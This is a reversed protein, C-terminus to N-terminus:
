EFLHEPLPKKVDRLRNKIRSAARKSQDTEAIKQDFYAMLKMLFRAAKGNIGRILSTLIKSLFRGNLALNITGETVEDDLHDSAVGPWKYNQCRKLLNRLQIERDLSGVFTGGEYPLDPLHLSDRLTNKVADYFKKTSSFFDILRCGPTIECQGLEDMSDNTLSRIGGSDRHATLSPIMQVAMSGLIIKHLSSTYRHTRRRLLPEGVQLMCVSSWFLSRSDDRDDSEEAQACARGRARAGARPAGPDAIGPLEIGGYRVPQFWGPHRYKQSPTSYHVIATKSLDGDTVVVMYEKVLTDNFEPISWPVLGEEGQIASVDFGITEAM